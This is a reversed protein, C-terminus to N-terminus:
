KKNNLYATGILLMNNAPIESSNTLEYVVSHKYAIGEKSKTDESVFKINRIIVVPRNRLQFEEKQIQLSQESHTLAERTLKISANSDHLAQKSLYLGIATFILASFVLMHGIFNYFSEWRKFHRLFKNNEEM